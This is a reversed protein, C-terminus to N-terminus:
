HLFQNVSLIETILLFAFASKFRSWRDKWCVTQHNWNPTWLEALSLRVCVGTVQTVDDRERGRMAQSEGQHPSASTTQSGGANGAEVRKIGFDARRASNKYFKGWVGTWPMGLTLQEQVMPLVHRTKTEISLCESTETSLIEWTVIM